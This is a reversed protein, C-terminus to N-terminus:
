DAKFVIGKFSSKCENILRMIEVQTWLLFEQTLKNALFCLDFDYLWVMLHFILVNTVTMINFFVFFLHCRALKIM